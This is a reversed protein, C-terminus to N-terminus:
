ERIGRGVRVIGPLIAHRPRVFHGNFNPSSRAVPQHILMKAIATPRFVGMVKHCNSLTM